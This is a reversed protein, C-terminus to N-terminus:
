GLVKRWSGQSAHHLIIKRRSPCIQSGVGRVGLSHEVLSLWFGINERNKELESYEGQLAAILKEEKIRSRWNRDFTVGAVSSHYVWANLHSGESDGDCSSRFSATIRIRSFPKFAVPHLEAIRAM